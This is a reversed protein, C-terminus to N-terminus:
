SFVTPRRQLLEEREPRSKVIGFDGEGFRKNAIDLFELEKEKRQEFYGQVAIYLSGITIIGTVIRLAWLFSENGPILSVIILVILALLFVILGAKTKEYM